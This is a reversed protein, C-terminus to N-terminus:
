IGNARVMACCSWSAISPLCPTEGQQLPGRAVTCAHAIPPALRFIARWKSHITAPREARPRTQSSGTASPCGGSRRGSSPGTQDGRRHPRRRLPTRAGRRGARDGAWCPDHVAARGALLGCPPALRATAVEFLAVGTRIAHWGHAGLGRSAFSCDRYNARRARYHAVARRTARGASRGGGARPGGASSRHRRRATAVNACGCPRRLLTGRGALRRCGAGRADLGPM